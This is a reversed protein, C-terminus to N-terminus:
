QRRIGRWGRDYTSKRGIRLLMPQADPHRERLKDGAVIDRENIEYDGTEIDICIFKGDDAPDLKPVIKDRYIEMARDYIVDKSYRRGTVQM